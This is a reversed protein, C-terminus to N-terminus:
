LGNEFKVKLADYFSKLADDANDYLDDLLDKTEAEKMEKLTEELHFETVRVVDLDM